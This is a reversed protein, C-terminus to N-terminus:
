PSICFYVSMHKWEEFDLFPTTCINKRVGFSFIKAPFNTFHVLSKTTSRSCIIEMTLNTSTWLINKSCFQITFHTIKKALIQQSHSKRSPFRFNLFFSQFHRSSCTFSYWFTTHRFYYKWFFFELYSMKFWKYKSWTEKRLAAKSSKLWHTKNIKQWQGVITVSM